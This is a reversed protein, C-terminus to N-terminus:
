SRPRYGGLEIDIPNSGSETIDVYSMRRVVPKSWARKAEAAPAKRDDAEQASPLPSPVHAM